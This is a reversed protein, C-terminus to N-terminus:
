APPVRQFVSHPCNQIILIARNYCGPNKLNDVERTSFELDQMLLPCHGLVYQLLLLCTCSHSGLLQIGPVLQGGYERSRVENIM